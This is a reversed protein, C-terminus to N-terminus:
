IEHCRCPFQFKGPAVVNVRIHYQAFDLAWSRTLGLVAHKSGAYLPLRRKGVLCSTSGVNVIAGGGHKKMHPVVESTFNFTGRVNVDFVDDYLEDSPLEGQTPCIAANNVLGDLHGYKSIAQEIIARCGKRDRVDCKIFTLREQPLAELEKTKETIDVACVYAGYGILQRVCALGIGTGGGTVVYSKNKFLNPDM